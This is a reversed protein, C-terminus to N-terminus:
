VPPWSRWRCSRAPAWTSSCRPPAHWRIPSSPKAPVTPTPKPLCGAPGSRDGVRSLFGPAFPADLPRFQYILGDHLLMQPGAPDAVLRSHVGSANYGTWWAHTLDVEACSRGFAATVRGIDVSDIDSDLDVDFFVDFFPDGAPPTRWREATLQIDVIDILGGSRNVDVPCTLPYDITEGDGKHLRLAGLSLPELFVHLSHTWKMGVSTVIPPAQSNYAIQLGFTPGVGPFQFHTDSTLHNGNTTNIGDLMHVPVDAPNGNETGGMGLGNRGPPPLLTPTEPAQESVQAPSMAQAVPMFVLTAIVFFSLAVYLQRKHLSM